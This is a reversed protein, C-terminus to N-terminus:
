NDDAGYLHKRLAIDEEARKQEYEIRNELTAIYKEAFGIVKPNESNRPRLLENHM